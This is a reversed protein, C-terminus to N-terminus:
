GQHDESSERAGRESFTSRFVGGIDARGTILQDDGSCGEIDDVDVRRAVRWLFTTGCNVENTLVGGGDLVGLNHLRVLM